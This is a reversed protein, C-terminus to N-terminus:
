PRVRLLRRRQTAITSDIRLGVIPHADAHKYSAVVPVIQPSNALLAAHWGAWSDLTITL